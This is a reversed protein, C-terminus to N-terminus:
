LELTRKTKVDIQVNVFIPALYVKEMVLADNTKVAIRLAVVTFLRFIYFIFSTIFEIMVTMNSVLTKM